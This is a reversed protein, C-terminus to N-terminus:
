MHPQRISLFLTQLIKFIPIILKEFIPVFGSASDTPWPAKINRPPTQFVNNLLHNIFFWSDANQKRLFLDHWTLSTMRVVNRSSDEIPNGFQYLLPICLRQCTYIGTHGMCSDSFYLVSSHITTWSSSYGPVLFLSSHALMLRAIPMQSPVQEHCFETYYGWWHSILSCLTTILHRWSM